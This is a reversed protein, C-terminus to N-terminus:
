NVISAAVTTWKYFLRAIGRLELKLYRSFHTVVLFNHLGAIIYISSCSFPSIYIYM